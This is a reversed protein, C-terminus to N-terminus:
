QRIFKATYIRNANELLVIYSGSKYGNLNIECPFRDTTKSEVMKGTSDVIFLKVTSNIDNCYILAINKAPNPAVYFSEYTQVESLNNIGNVTLLLWKEPDVKIQKIKGPLYLSWEDYNALQRRSITTDGTGLSIKYDTLINFLPTTASSATLFSNVYLTDQHHRWNVTLLPYGEGYYWQEFFRDFDQGTKEELLLKLDEGIAVDNKHRKFYEKLIEFFLSDNQVEHRIMHIVAAGKKYSLRYDFIRDENAADASPVYVSGGNESQIYSHADAMWLDADNQSVLYQNALYEAYSAFGENIWIDQWTGCTVYDGFWQHALEHAVLLFYFSGLTTMTQHEMGGGTPVLCHGYKESQFPYTGFLGSYLSILGATRDIDSKNQQFYALTDYIYNQILVSDHGGPLAAYFSYDMYEGVAYSLLYYAVPFRTKWEYRIKNGPLIVQKELIGNSGAKLRSDTTFFMYASDAKDALVQKCPFWNLAAFPESLTWTIRKNWVDNYKNYIGSIWNTQQGLGSYYITVTVKERAQITSPSLVLLQNNVHSFATTIGDKQVSDVILDSLLDFVLESVPEDLIQVLISTSGKLYTSTDTVALDIRYFKVDYRNMRQDFPNQQIGSRYITRNNTRAEGKTWGGAFLLFWIFLISINKFVSM